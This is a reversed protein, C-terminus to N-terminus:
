EREYGSFMAYPKKLDEITFPRSDNKGIEPSVEIVLYGSYGLAIMREVIRANETTGEGFRCFDKVGFGKNEKLHIHNIRGFFQDVLDDLKVGAADFHGTDMTIGLNPSPQAKLIRRYDELNELNNGQHNELSILVDKEEAVPMLEELVAIISDLGGEAGRACGTASVVRCGLELAADMARLKHCLDKTVGVSGEGGFHSIHLSAPTLGADRCRRKLDTMKRPTLTEPYWCNFEIHRYGAERAEAFTKKFDANGFGDFSLTACALRIM